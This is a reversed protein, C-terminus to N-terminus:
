VYHSWIQPMVALLLESIEEADDERKKPRRGEQVRVTIAESESVGLVECEVECYGGASASAAGYATAAASISIAGAAESLIVTAPYGTVTAVADSDFAAAVTSVGVGTAAAAADSDFAAAATARGSGTATATSTISGAAANTTRASGTATATSTISGAAKVLSAGTGTFTAAGAGAASLTRSETAASEPFLERALWFGSGVKSADNASGGSGLNTETSVAGSRFRLDVDPTAVATIHAGAALQTVEAATLSDNLVVAFEGIVLPAHFGFQDSGIRWTSTPITTGSVAATQPSGASEGELCVYQEYSSGRRQTVVVVSRNVYPVQTQLLEESGGTSRISTFTYGDNGSNLIARVGPVTGTDSMQDFLGWFSSLIKGASPRVRIAVAWDANPLEPITVTYYNGSNTRGYGGFDLGTLPARTHFPIPWGGRLARTKFGSVRKAM